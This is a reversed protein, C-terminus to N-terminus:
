IFHAYFKAPHFFLKLVTPGGLIFHWYLVHLCSNFPSYKFYDRSFIIQDAWNLLREIRMIRISYTPCSIKCHPYPLLSGMCILWHIRFSIIVSIEVIEVFLPFCWYFSFERYLLCVMFFQKCTDFLQWRHFPILSAKLSATKLLIEASLLLQLWWVCISCAMQVIWLSLSIPSWKM